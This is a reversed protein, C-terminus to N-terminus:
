APHRPLTVHRPFLLQYFLRDLCILLSSCFLPLYSVTDAGGTYLSAATWKAILEKESGAEPFGAQLMGGLYSPKNKGGEIQGKVFEYPRDAIVSM